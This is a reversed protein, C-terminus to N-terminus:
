RSVRWNLTIAGPTISAGTTNCVKFNVNGSTPYGIITLMGAVAPIYGTVGTPDGNFSFEVTDSTAIGAGAVSVAAVCAGSSIASTGLVATGSAITQAYGVIGLVAAGSKGIGIHPYYLIDAVSTTFAPSAANDALTVNWNPNTIGLIQVNYANAGSGTQNISVLTDNTQGTAASGSVTEVHVNHADNIYLGTVNSHTQAEMHLGHIGISTMGNSGTAGQGNIEFLRPGSGQANINYFELDSIQSTGSVLIPIATSTTNLGIATLNRFEELGTTGAFLVAPVYTCGAPTGVGSALYTFTTASTLAAVTFTGNFAGAGGSCGSMVFTQGLAVFTADPNDNASAAMSVTVTAGNGSVSAPTFTANSPNDILLGVGSFNSM